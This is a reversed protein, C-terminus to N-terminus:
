STVAFSNKQSDNKKHVSMREAANPHYKETATNQIYQETYDRKYRHKKKGPSRSSTKRDTMEKIMIYGREACRSSIKKTPIKEIFIGTKPSMTFISSREKNKKHLDKRRRRAARRKKTEEKQLYEEAEIIPFIKRSTVDNQLLWEPHM